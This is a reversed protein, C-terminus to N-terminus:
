TDACFKHEVFMWLEKLGAISGRRGCNDSCCKVRTCECVTNSSLGLFGTRPTLDKALIGYVASAWHLDEQSFVTRSALRDYNNTVIHHLMRGLQLASFADSTEPSLESNQNYLISTKDPLLDHDFAKLAGSFNRSCPRYYLAFVIEVM